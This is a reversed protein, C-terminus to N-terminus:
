CGPVATFTSSMKSRRRHVYNLSSSRTGQAPAPPSRTMTKAGCHRGVANRIAVYYGRRLVAHRYCAAWLLIIVAPPDFVDASWECTGTPVALPLRHCGGDVALVPHALRGLPPAGPHRLGLLHVDRWVRAEAAPALLAEGLLRDAWCNEQTKYFIAEYAVM